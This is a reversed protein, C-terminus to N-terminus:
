GWRRRCRRPRADDGRRPHPASRRAGRRGAGATTPLPPPALLSEGEDGLARLVALAASLAARHEPQDLDLTLTVRGELSETGQVVNRAQDIVNM